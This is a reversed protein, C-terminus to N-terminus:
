PIEQCLLLKGDTALLGFAVIWRTRTRLVVSFSRENVLSTDCTLWNDADLAMYIWEVGDMRDLTGKLIIRGDVSFEEM